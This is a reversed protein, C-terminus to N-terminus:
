VEEVCSAEVGPHRFVERAVALASRLEIGGVPALLPHLRAGHRPPGEWPLRTAMYRRRMKAQDTTTLPTHWSGGTRTMARASAEQARAQTWALPMAQRAPWARQM